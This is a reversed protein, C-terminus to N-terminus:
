GGLSITVEDLADVPLHVLQGDAGHRRSHKVAHGALLVVPETPSWYRPALAYHLRLIRKQAAM